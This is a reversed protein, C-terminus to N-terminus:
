RRFAFGVSRLEAENLMGFEMYRRVLDNLEKPYQGKRKNTIRGYGDKVPPYPPFYTQERNEPESFYRSNEEAKRFLPLNLLRREEESLPYGRRSEIKAELVDGEYTRAEARVATPSVQESIRLRAEPEVYNPPPLPAVKLQVAVDGAFVLVAKRVQEPTKASAIEQTLAARNNNFASLAKDPAFGRREVETTFINQIENGPILGTIEPMPALENAYAVFEETGKTITFTWHHDKLEMDTVEVTGLSSHVVKQGIKYQPKPIGERLATQTEKLDKELGNITSELMQRRKSPLVEALQKLGLKERIEKQREPTMMGQQRMVELLKEIQDLSSQFEEGLRYEAESKEQIHEFDIGNYLAQFVPEAGREEGSGAVANEIASRAESATLNSKESSRLENLANDLAQTDAEPKKNRIVWTRLTFFGTPKSLPTDWGDRPSSM